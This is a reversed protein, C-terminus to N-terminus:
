VSFDHATKGHFKTFLGELDHQPRSMHYGQVYNVGLDRLVHLVEKSEVFEAVTQIKLGKALDVLAKVFLQDEPSTDLNQIYSGDIKIFDVDLNKIYAFSSFGAGFDDLAFQCGLAKLEGVFKKADGLDRMAATETVEFILNHPDADNEKLQKKLAKMMEADGFSIGSLNISFLADIGRSKLDAQMKICRTMVAKDLKQILGFHEAADIFSGPLGLTGEEDRLRILAEYIPKVNKGKACPVMPQFHVEFGDHDLAVRLRDVWELQSRVSSSAVDSEGGSEDVFLRNRGMEKAQYMALDAGTVLHAIDKGAQPYPVMGLSMTIRLKAGNHDVRVKNIREVLKDVKQKADRTAINHMIIAFEDGGLRAIIDTSRMTKRFIDACTKLIADGADHGHTDNIAKFRDLDIYLIVGQTNHRKAMAVTRELEQMFQNRNYLGTLHDTTALRLMNEQDLKSGTVNTAAGRYGQFVGDKTVPVGSIRLCVREGMKSRTWFELDRYPQHRNCRSEILERVSDSDRGFLAEFKTRGIMEEASFGLTGKVGPSVYAFRFQDDVEWLWDASSDAFDRFRQESRALDEEFKKRSTIDRSHIVLSSLSWDANYLGKAVAELYVWGGERTPMRFSFEAVPKGDMVQKIGRKLADLDDPHVYAAIDEGRLEDRTYGLVRNFASNVYEFHGDPAIISILDYANDTILRFRRSAQELENTREIVERRIRGAMNQQAMFVWALALTVLVGVGIFLNGAWTYPRFYSRDYHWVFDWVGGALQFQQRFVYENDKHVYGRGALSLSGLKDGGERLMVDVGVGEPLQRTIVELIKQADIGVLLAGDRAHQPVILAVLPNNGVLWDGATEPKNEPMVFGLKNLDKISELPYLADISVGERYRLLGAFQVSPYRGMLGTVAGAFGDTTDAAEGFLSLSEIRGILGSWHARFAALQQESQLDMRSEWNARVRDNMTLGGWISISLGVVVVIPLMLRWPTNGASQLKINQQRINM